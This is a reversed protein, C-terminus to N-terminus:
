SSAKFSNLTARRTKSNIHSLRAPHTALSGELVLFILMQFMAVANTLGFVCSSLIVVNQSLSLVINDRSQVRGCPVQLFRTSFKKHKSSLDVLDVVQPM